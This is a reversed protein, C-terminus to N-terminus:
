KEELKTYLRKTKFPSFEHGGGEYFRNFFEVYQLRLSHVGAGLSQIILNAAHTIILIVGLLIFGIVPVIDSILQAVVNFALAMGSTALGLALLRAYSLWDGVYGTIGFFGIPGTHIFVLLLGLLTMIGALVLVPFGIEWKLIFFGILLGGGIELPYWALYRTLMMKYSRQRAAQIVGLAIGLNLHILGFILAVTLILLPNELSDVPLQIGAITLNYLKLETNHYIFRPIFDGFFSNTLFGVITASLGLWIGLFGWNKIMSSFKGYRLYLYLSLLFIVLGYGADGLMFGFFLIFFIGIFLTPNLENYQPIAFLSLFTKFSSAWKPTPLYTPPNDPNSSPTESTIVAYDKSITNILDHVNKENKEFVWCQIVYTTDTKTFNKVVERRLREIKLEERVTRLESLFQRAYTDLQTNLEKKTHDIEKQQKTLTKIAEKPTGTPHTIHFVTLHEKGIDDIVTKETKHAILLVVWEKTKGTKIQKSQLMIYESTQIRQEIAPLNQTTGAIITIYPSDHIDSLNVSFDQLLSIQQIQESIIEKQEDLEHLHEENKLVVPELDQLLHDTQTQLEPFRQKKIKKIEPLVPHLIARIGKPHKRRKKLIDILRTLRTEYQTCITIEPHIPPHETEEIFTPKEKTIDIIEVTGNEHLAQIMDELYYHHIAISLKKM